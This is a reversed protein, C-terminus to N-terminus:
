DDEPKPGFIESLGGSMLLGILGQTEARMSEGAWAGLIMSPPMGNFMAHCMSAIMAVRTAIMECRVSEMSAIAQEDDIEPNEDRIAIMREALIESLPGKVKRNYNMLDRVEAWANEKFKECNECV